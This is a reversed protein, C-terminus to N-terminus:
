IEAQVTQWGIFGHCAMSRMRDRGPRDVQRFARQILFEEKQDPPQGAPRGIRDGADVM